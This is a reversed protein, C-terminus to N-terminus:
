SWTSTLLFAHFVGPERMNMSTPLFTEMSSRMWPMIMAEPLSAQTARASCM